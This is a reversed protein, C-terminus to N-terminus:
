MSFSANFKNERVIPSNIKLNVVFLDRDILNQNFFINHAGLFFNVKISFFMIHVHGILPARWRMIYINTSM